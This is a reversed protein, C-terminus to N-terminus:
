DNYKKFQPFDKNLLEELSSLSERYHEVLRFIVNNPINHAKKSPRVIRKIGSPCFNNDANLFNYLKQIKKINGIFDEFVLVKLQEKKFYKLYIILHKEYEGRSHYDFPNVSVTNDIVPPPAVNDIFVEELSRNELGNNLSFFYNSIARDVPNRLLYIIKCDPLLASILQASEEREYYSTSKEGLVHNNSICHSFYKKYYETIDLENISKNMFYKPEPFVPRAMCIEPHENLINYLYTTGSRQAGVIIFINQKNM